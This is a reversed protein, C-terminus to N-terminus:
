YKIFKGLTIGYNTEINLLYVGSSIDPLKLLTKDSKNLVATYIEKGSINYISIVKILDNYSPNINLIDKVPNPYVQFSQKTNQDIGLSASDVNFVSANSFSPNLRPTGAQQAILSYSALM